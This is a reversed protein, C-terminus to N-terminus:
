SINEGKMPVVKLKTTYQNVMTKPISNVAMYMSGIFLGTLDM